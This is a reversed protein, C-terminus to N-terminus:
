RSCRDGAPLSTGPSPFSTFYTFFSSHLTFFCREAASPFALEVAKARIVYFMVVCFSLPHAMLGHCM